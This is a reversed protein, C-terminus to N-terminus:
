LLLCSHSFDFNGLLYPNLHKVDINHPLVIL